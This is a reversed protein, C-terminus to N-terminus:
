ASPVGPTPGLQHPSSKPRPWASRKTKSLEAALLAAGQSTGTASASVEVPAGTAAHLMHRYSTNRAFPGGGGIPGRHGLRSLCEASGRGLYFGAAVGRAATGIEPEVGVWHAARGAYPGTEPLVAPLLMTGSAMVQAIDADTADPTPGRTVLDHERGGMFRASPVADGFANVNVLTDREPDLKVPRGGVAMAIVWTGTSVVSFPPKQSVSRFLM